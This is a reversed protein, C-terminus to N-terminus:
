GDDGRRLKQPRQRRPDEDPQNFGLVVETYKGTARIVELDIELRDNRVYVINNDNSGYGFRTLNDEGVLNNVERVPEDQSDVLTDDEEFYTVTIQEYEGENELFEQHSIIYPVNPTRRSLELEQNWEGPGTANRFVNMVEAETTGETEEVTEDTSTGQYEKLKTIAMELGPNESSVPSVFENQQEPILTEVAKSPTEYEEAKNLKKYYEKAAAIDRKSIENYEDRLRKEALIYGGTGGAALSVVAIGAMILYTRNM